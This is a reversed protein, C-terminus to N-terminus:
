VFAKMRGTLLRALWLKIGDPILYPLVCKALVAGLSISGEGLYALCFWLTGAAYCLVLGLLCGWLGGRGKTLATVMWYALGTLLFGGIYGGTAGLLVGLGGRFGSFVPLGVAGMALYVGIAATGWKGGLLGLTLFIGFTQLTIAIDGMPVSIWGCVALMAAFLSCQTMRRVNIGRRRPM